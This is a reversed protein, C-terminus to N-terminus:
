STSFGSLAEALDRLEVGTGHMSEKILTKYNLTENRTWHVYLGGGGVVPLLRLPCMNPSM